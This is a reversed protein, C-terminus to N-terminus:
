HKNNKDVVAILKSAHRNKNKNEPMYRALFSNTVQHIEGCLKFLCSGCSKSTKMQSLLTSESSPNASSSRRNHRLRVYGPPTIKVSLKPFDHDLLRPAQDILHFKRSRVYHSVAPIGIPIKAKNDCSLSICEDDYLGALEQVYNVQACTIHFDPHSKCKSNQKQPIKAPIVSKYYKPSRVNQKPPMFLRRVTTHSLKYINPYRRSLRRKIYDTCDTISLGNFRLVDDRRRNHAEGSHTNLLKKLEPVLEPHTKYYPKRGFPNNPICFERLDNITKISKEKTQFLLWKYNLM